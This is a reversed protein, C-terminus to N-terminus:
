PNPHGPVGVGPQIPQVLLFISGSASCAGFRFPIYAASLQNPPYVKLAGATVPICTSAPYNSVNVIQLVTHATARPALTVTREPISHVWRAPSGLQHGSFASVGPFGFLHCTHGSVNTFEMPYYTSGAAAGGEGLGLWVELGSTACRPTAVAAAHAVAPTNSSTITLAAVAALAAGAIAQRLRTGTSRKSM